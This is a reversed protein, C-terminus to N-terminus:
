SAHTYAKVRALLDEADRVFAPIALYVENAIKEIYVHSTKNRSIRHQHWPGPADIFGHEAALRVFSPFPVDDIPEKVNPHNELCRHILAVAVTYTYEFAQVTGDRLALFLDGRSAEANRALTLNSKLRELSSALPAFTLSQM